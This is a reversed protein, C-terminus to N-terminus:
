PHGGDPTLPISVAKRRIGEFRVRGAEGAARAREAGAARSREELEDLLAAVRAAPHACAHELVAVFDGRLADVAEADFLATRYRFSGVIGDDTERLSLSLEWPSVPSSTALPAVRLGDADVPESPTNDLAFMVQFLPTRGAGRRGGLERVLTSFPLDANRYAGLTTERVRGLLEGFDPDGSLDTRLVLQNIFFGILPETELRGRGAIDTGVVVDRTGAHHAVVVDFAALLLMFPTVGREGAVARVRASLDAGLAVPLVAGHYGPAEGAEGRTALDLLPLAALRRRWYGLQAAAQPGRMWARQWAAFDGYQLPLAPLEPARGSRIARYCATLERVLVGASWGDFVIHHLNLLLVHEDDATRALLARLLPGRALDYPHEALEAAHRAVRAPREEAPVGRLEERALAFPISPLVVQRGAGGETPFVTRLVEHRAIVARFAAELADGDLGAGAIRLGVPITFGGGADEARDMFWLREQHLSLPLPASRDACPIPATRAADDAEAGEIWEALAAATPRAFLVPLPVEVGPAARLRAAVRMVLLSNGGLDFFHENVGVREAGLVEAFVEAVRAELPTRPAVFADGAGRYEPAPLTTPDIKGTATEPLTDMRVFAAPVMYEPLRERLYGRLAGADASGAVYAVLRRDGPADERLVVLAGSLSPHRRLVAEIEGLEVRYGRVKVQGDTRGLITLNGGELWRARDGTRYMRAGGGAFLDPVFKEASLAPRGLYGRAVGAGGIYLEGAVGPPVPELRGDLVYFTLNRIPGGVPVAGNRHVGPPLVYASCGVVTETPGYENMLRVGPAHDQWFVTPEAPLFDAGIVLTHAAERAEDVGLLPTLLSLHTPTIKIAGFGPRARIAGALAEVANEEPLLHVAKGSFLPLLNTLTLDVAMSSFVPSGNGRDAGYFGIGWHIYNVVGRHHMAVGKPRGTTGSTYIVYALNESTVAPEPAEAPEAAIAEADRDVCVVPVVSRVPAGALLRAQTLLVAVAADELVYGIREAPHAPDVPVYAGGAKMVGLIAPILEPGRELCLGVRVEPGVGLRALRNAIRNARAEVEAYSLSVAGFTVAVARPTRAAQAAFLQHICRDAPFDASTRNWEEVVQRREEAGMLPVGALPADGGAAFRELIRALHGLMRRVTSAGLQARQYVAHVVLGDALSASLTLPYNTRVDVGRPTVRVGREGGGLADGVPYNEFVVISDFMPAGAPVESWAQVQTLPTAQHEHLGLNWAQLRRLWPLVRAQGPVRVRVPLTNIFLGVMEEVGEVEPPRGSLTAGFMVDDRGGYRSLLLAWAGQLVTNVTLGSGRAAAELRAHADVSLRLTERGYGDEAVVPAEMGLPTAETVGALSERWFREAADPRRARLWAVFDRYPRAAPLQAAGGAVDADYLAAVDGFLLPLSWGDVVLHHQTCVLHHRDDAMRLLALRLLPPERLDFGRVRDAALFAQRRAEQAGADVGRWDEVRLPLEVGRRVVQVPADVGDWAFGTRLAPHRELAGRWARAFAVGDLEGELDYCFQGLYVGDGPAYLAHFLIGEQTSTLPYVDEVDRRGATVADLQAQTLRALPFDSPTHGGAGEATCHAVTARLEDAFRRAVRAITEPRHLSRSFGLTLRLRGGRVAASVRLPHTGRWRPSVGAGAPEGCAGFPSAPDLAGDLQGLYEFRVQAPPLAELRARAAPSGLWRLAGYGIGRNPVARLQEKVAKLAEVPGEAQSLDLLVPFLTTFWGVTRSTDVGPFIEERGHGEMEVRVRAGGTWATVARALAALLADNIRTHWARPVERLLAQTEDEGLAVSVTDLEADGAGDTGGPLDAPLAAVDAAAAWHELEGDFGGDRAHAALRAAWDRFATTKAPLRPEDGAEAQELAARLDEMLVRWSVVDMVLHHVVALLRGTRGAGRDFLAVRLLPGRELELGAQLRAGEAEVAALQAAEDMGSLDVRAFTFAGEVGAHWQRWGDEGRGFRLRLADHHAVVRELARALAAADVPRRVEFLQSLNFHHRDDFDRSLFWAQIPTLEVPGEVAGQEAAAAAPVEGCVAALEAVTPHEFVQRPALHLGAARARAVVQISIISDGGLEFFPDHIGVRDRKLVQAFIGALLAETATRPAAYDRAGGARGPAPLAARDVKGQPTLPLREMAVVAAPLMHEPLSGLLHARLAAADPAAGGPGVVYAVLRTEGPTDERPVVVAERVGPHRELAAEVEGPEVRFGRVKVQFDVRGLFVLTGDEERRARDGTRYLRAGPETSFPDPVFKEATLAARGLYGRALAPGGLFLEGAVGAPVPRLGADLVYAARRGFGGGVPVGRARDSPDFGPAVDFTTATVVAETPGYANLLRAGAAPTARWRGVYAPLMADGGAIVLRLSRLGPLAEGRAWEEALLHWQATPLNLLTIGADEVLRGIEEASLVDDRRLVVCAGALLPPLLQEVSPDFNFSAFQLVRDGPGLGYHRVVARAHAALARHEVVVGRPTGTSGSTYIVYAASRPPPAFGLPGDDLAAAAPAEDDLAAVALGEVRPVRERLAASTLVLPLAADAAMFALRGPPYAPDLPVYAGGARLVALVATVRELSSPLMIGVRTEPGVGRARLARALRWARRDLEAYSLAQDGFRVAPAGPTRAAQAAFGDLVTEDDDGGGWPAANAGDLVRAREAASMVALAPIPADPRALADALLAGVRELLLALRAPSFGNGRLELAADGGEGVLSLHLDFPDEAARRRAVEIRLAGAAHVAGRPVASFGLGLRLTADPAAADGAVFRHLAPGDFCEQWGAGEDWADRVRGALARFGPGPELEVGLPLHQAFPGVAARLEDDGRGDYAVGVRIAGGGGLRHLLAAWGALVAAGPPVGTEAAFADLAAATGPALGRRSAGREGPADAEVPLPPQPAECRRIWFARGAQAEDSAAVENLWEAVALYPVPEREVPEGGRGAAYLAALDAALNEWSAGDVALPHARLLLLHEDDGTRLLRADPLADDGDGDSSWLADVRAARADPPLARLEEAAHHRVGREEVVQLAEPMGPLREFATRLVEHRAVLADLAAALVDADLPGRLRLLARAPGAPFAPDQLLAWLHRQRPALRYGVISEM